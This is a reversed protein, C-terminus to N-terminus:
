VACTTVCPETAAAARAELAANGNTRIAEVDNYTGSPDTRWDVVIKRTDKPLRNARLARTRGARKGAVAM